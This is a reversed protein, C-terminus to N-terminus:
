LHIINFSFILTPLTILIYICSCIEMNCKFRYKIELANFKYEVRPVSKLGRQIPKLFWRPTLKESLQCKFNTWECLYSLVFTTPMLDSLFWLLSKLKGLCVRIILAWEKNKQFHNPLWNVFSYKIVITM